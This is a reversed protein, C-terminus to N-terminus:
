TEEVGNITFDLKLAADADGQVKDGAGLTYVEDTELSFGAALSTSVPIIKRATGASRLLYLNVLRAATDTNVLTITKIIATTLAPVTYLDGATVTGLQGNALLKTTFTGAM